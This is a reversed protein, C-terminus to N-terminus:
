EDISNIIRITWEAQLMMGEMYSYDPHHPSLDAIESEIHYLDENFRKKAEDLTM